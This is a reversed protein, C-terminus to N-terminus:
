KGRALEVTREYDKIYQSNDFDNALRMLEKDAEWGLNSKFKNYDYQRMIQRRFGSEDLEDSSIINFEGSIMRSVDYFQIKGIIETLSDPDYWEIHELAIFRWCIVQGRFKNPVEQGAYHRGTQFVGSIPQIDSIHLM